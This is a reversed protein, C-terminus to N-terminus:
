RTRKSAKGSSLMKSSLYIRTDASPEGDLNKLITVSVSLCAHKKQASCVAAILLPVTILIVNRMIMM